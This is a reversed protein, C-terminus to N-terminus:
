YSLAQPCAWSLGAPLCASIALLVVPLPRSPSPPNLPSAPLCRLPQSGTLFSSTAPRPPPPTPAECTAADDSCSSRSSISCGVCCFWTVQHLQSRLSQEGPEWSCSFWRGPSRPLSTVGPLPPRAPRHALTGPAQGCDQPLGPELAESGECARRGAPPCRRLWSPSELGPGRRARNTCDSATRHPGWPEQHWFHHKVTETYNSLSFFFPKDKQSQNIESLM